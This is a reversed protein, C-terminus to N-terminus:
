CFIFPFPCNWRDHIVHYFCSRSAEVSLVDAGRSATNESSARLCEVLIREVQDADLRGAAVSMQWQEEPHLVDELIFARVEDEVSIGTAEVFNNLVTDVFTPRGAAAAASVSTTTITM